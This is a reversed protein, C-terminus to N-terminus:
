VGAERAEAPSLSGKRLVLASADMELVLCSCLGAQGAVYNVPIGNFSGPREQLGM